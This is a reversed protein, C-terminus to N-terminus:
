GARREASTDPQIERPPDLPAVPQIAAREPVDVHVPDTLTTMTGGRDSPSSVAEVCVTGTPSAMMMEHRLARESCTRTGSRLSATTPLHCLRVSWSSAVGTGTPLLPRVPITDMSGTGDRQSWRLGSARAYGSPDRERQGQNTLPVRAFSFM